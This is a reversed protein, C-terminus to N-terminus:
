FCDPTDSPSQKQRLLEKKLSRQCGRQSAKTRGGGGPTFVERVEGGEGTINAQEVGDATVKVGHKRTQPRDEGTSHLLCLSNPHM